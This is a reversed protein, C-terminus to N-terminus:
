TPRQNSTKTSFLLFFVALPPKGHETVINILIRWFKKVAAQYKKKKDDVNPLSAYRTLIDDKQIASRALFMWPTGKSDSAMRTRRVLAETDWGALTIHRIFTEPKRLSRFCTAAQSMSLIDRADLHDVINPTFKLVDPLETDSQLSLDRLDVASSPAISPVPTVSRSSPLSAGSHSRPRM